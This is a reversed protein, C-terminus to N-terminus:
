VALLGVGDNHFIFDKTILLVKKKKLGHSSQHAFVEPFKGKLYDHKLHPVGLACLRPLVPCLVASPSEISGLPPFHPNWNSPM